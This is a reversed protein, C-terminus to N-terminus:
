SLDSKDNVQLYSVGDIVDLMLVVHIEGLLILTWHRVSFMSPSLLVDIISSTCVAMECADGKFFFRALTELDDRSFGEPRHHRNQWVLKLFRSARNHLLEGFEDLVAESKAPGARGGNRRAAIVEAISEDMLKDFFERSFTIVSQALM